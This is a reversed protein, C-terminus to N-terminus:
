KCSSLDVKVKAGVTVSQHSKINDNDLLYQGLFRWDVTLVRSGM